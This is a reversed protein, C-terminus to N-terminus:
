SLHSGSRMANAVVLGVHLPPMHFYASQTKGTEEVTGFSYCTICGSSLGLITSVLVNAAEM